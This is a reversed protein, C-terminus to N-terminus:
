RRGSSREHNRAHERELELVRRWLVPSPTRKRSEWQYVVAKGAAGIQRALGAQTLQLQRRLIRLRTDYDHPVEPLPAPRAPQGAFRRYHIAMFREGAARTAFRIPRGFASRVTFHAELRGTRVAAQLTRVHVHLEEALRGLPLPQHQRAHDAVVDRARQLVPAPIARRGSDWTRFTELPISMLAAFARQGLGIARRLDRVETM